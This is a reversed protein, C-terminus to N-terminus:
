KVRCRGGDEFMVERRVREEKEEMGERERAEELSTSFTEM